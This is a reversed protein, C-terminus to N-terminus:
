RGKKTLWGPYSKWYDPHEIWRGRNDLPPMKFWRSARLQNHEEDACTLAQDFIGLQHVAGVLAVFLMFGGVILFAVLKDM